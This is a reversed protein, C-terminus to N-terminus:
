ADLKDVCFNTESIANKSHCYKKLCNEFKSPFFDLNQEFKESGAVNCLKM